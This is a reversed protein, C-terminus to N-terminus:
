GQEPLFEITEAISLWDDEPPGPSAFVMDYALGGVVLIYHTSVITQGAKLGEARVRVAKGAPLDIHEVSRDDDSTPAPGPRVDAAMAELTRQETPEVQLKLSDAGRWAMFPVAHDAAPVGGAADVGPEGGDIPERQRRASASMDGKMVQWDDPLTLVVGAAAIPHRVGRQGERRQRHPGSTRRRRFAWALAAAPVLSLVSIAAMWGYFEINTLGEQEAMVDISFWSLVGFLVAWAVVLVGTERRDWREDENARRWPQFPRGSYVQYLEGFSLLV